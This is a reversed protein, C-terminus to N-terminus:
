HNVHGINNKASAMKCLLSLTLESVSLSCTPTLPMKTLSAWLYPKPMSISGLEGERSTKLIIENKWGDTFTVSYVWVPVSDQKNEYEPASLKTSGTHQTIGSSLVPHQTIGVPVSAASSQRWGAAEWQQSHLITSSLHIDRPLRMRRSTGEASPSHLWFFFSVFLRM